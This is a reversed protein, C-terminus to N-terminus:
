CLFGVSSCWLYSACDGPVSVSLCVCLCFVCVHRIPGFSFHHSRQSHTALSLRWFVPDLRQVLGREGSSVPLKRFLLTRSSTLARHPLMTTISATRRSFHVSDSPLRTRSVRVYSAPLVSPLRHRNNSFVGTFLSRSVVRNYTYTHATLSMSRAVMMVRVFAMKTPGSPGPPGPPGTPSVLTSM